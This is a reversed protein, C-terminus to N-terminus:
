RGGMTMTFTAGGRGAPNGLAVGIGMDDYAGGLINARHGGSAMWRSVVSRPTAYGGTGYTINEAFRNGSYGAKKMRSKPSSGDRGSHSFYRGRVMSRSHRDAAKRLAWHSDLSGIGRKSRERNLLCRVAREVEDVNSKKPKLYQGKCGAASAPSIPALMSATVLLAAACM